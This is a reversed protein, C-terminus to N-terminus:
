DEEKTEGLTAQLMWISKTLDLVQDQAYNAIADNGEDDAIIILEQFEEVLHELDEEVQALM